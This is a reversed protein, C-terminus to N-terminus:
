IEIQFIMICLALLAVYFTAFYYLWSLKKKHLYYLVAGVIVSGIGVTLWMPQRYLGIGVLVFIVMLPMTLMTAKVIDNMKSRFVLWSMLLILAVYTVKGAFPPPSGEPTGLLSMSVNFIVAALLFAVNFLVFGVSVIIIISLLKKQWTNLKM